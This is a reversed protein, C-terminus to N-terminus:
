VSQVFDVRGSPEILAATLCGTHFAGTDVSIRSKEFVPAEVITHGHAVWMGDRRASQFFKRQGWLLTKESQQEVPESPDVAAHAVTLTGSTWILPLGHLWHIVDEGLRARLIDFEALYQEPTPSIPLSHLGFSALTQRGGYRLWLPGAGAPDELADLMMREHNGLICVFNPESQCTEAVFGLAV